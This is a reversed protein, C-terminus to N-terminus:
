NREDDIWNLLVTGYFLASLQHTDPASNRRNNVMRVVTDTRDKIGKAALWKLQDIFEANLSITDERYDM